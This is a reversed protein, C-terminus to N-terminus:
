LKFDEAVLPDASGVRFAFDAVGDHDIDGEVTFTGDLRDVTRLEYDKGAAGTFEAEGIFTFAQNRYLNKDPDIRSVDIIDGEAHNFDTIYDLTRPSFQALSYFNFTDAGAGGTVVDAGAGGELLDDGAGGDIVDHGRSGYVTDNMAGTKVVDNGAGLDLWFREFGDFRGFDVTAAGDDGVTFTVGPGNRLWAIELLDTGAGADVTVADDALVSKVDVYLQDDSQTMKYDLAEIDAYEVGNRGGGHLYGGITGDTDILVTSGFVEAPALRSYDVILTDHGGGGNVKDQGRLPLFTDDADTGVLVDAQNTGKYRM